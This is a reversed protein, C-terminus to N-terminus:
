QLKDLNLGQLIFNFLSKICFHIPVRIHYSRSLFKDINNKGFALNACNVKPALM